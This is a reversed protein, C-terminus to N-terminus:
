YISVLSTYGQQRVHKLEWLGIRTLTSTRQASTMPLRGHGACGTQLTCSPSSMALVSAVALGFVLLPM